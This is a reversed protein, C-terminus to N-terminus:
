AQPASAFGGCMELYAPTRAIDLRTVSGECASTVTRSSCVLTVRAVASQADPGTDTTTHHCMAYPTRTIVHMPLAVLAPRARRGNTM